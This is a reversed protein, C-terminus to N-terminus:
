PRDQPRACRRGHRYNPNKEGRVDAPKRGLVRFSHRHNEQCTMWELNEARNDDRVGNKHNVQLDTSGDVFATAVLRHVSLCKGDRGFKVFLYGNPYRGPKMIRPKVIRGAPRGNPVWRGLSRVRGMNSVEYGPVNTARWEEPMQEEHM